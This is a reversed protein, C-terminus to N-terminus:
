WGPYRRWWEEWAAKREPSTEGWGEQPRTDTVEAYLDDALTEITERGELERLWDEPLAEEGLAAGLLNGCIAATSDSDGSHNAALVLAARLDGPHALACYVAIALAEEAVWGAGLSEVREPTAPGPQDALALAADLAAYTEHHHPWRRLIRMAEDLERALPRGHHAM